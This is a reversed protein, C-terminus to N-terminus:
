EAAASFGDAEWGKGTPRPKASLTPYEASHNLLKGPSETSLNAPTEFMESTASIGNPAV